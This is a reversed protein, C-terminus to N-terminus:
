CLLIEVQHDILEKEKTKKGWRSNGHNGKGAIDVAPYNEKFCKRLSFNMVM